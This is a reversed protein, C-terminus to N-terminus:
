RPASPLGLIHSAHDLIHNGSSAVAAPRGSHVCNSSAQVAPAEHVRMDHLSANLRCAARCVRRACLRTGRGPSRRRRPWSARAATCSCSSCACGPFGLQPKNFGCNGRFLAPLPTLQARHICGLCVRECTGCLCTECSCRPAAPRARPLLPPVLRPGFVVAVDTGFFYLTFM